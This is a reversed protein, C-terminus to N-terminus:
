PVLPSDDGILDYGIFNSPVVNGGSRVIVLTAKITETIDAGYVGAGMDTLTYLASGTYYPSSSTYEFWQATLGTVGAGNQKNAIKRTNWM